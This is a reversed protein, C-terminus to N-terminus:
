HNKKNVCKKLVHAPIGVVVTNAPVNRGRLVVSGAGTVAGKGIIVPAVLTTHSGIFTHSKILTKHKHKGDYNATITGAGINVNDGLTTDGLYTLHKAKTHRGVISKKVEVFNGIEATDKIVAGARLHAFPGIVCGKGIKVEGEIVTLPEIVTDRGIKARIDIYTTLPDVVTVGRKMHYEIIRQRMIRNAFALDRQSNIGIIEEVDKVTFSSLNYGRNILLGVTDTLYYERQKNHRKLLALVKFLPKASFCYMGSNIETIDRGKRGIDLHETIGIIANSSNRLIRGYGQPHSSNGTLVTCNSEIQRHRRILHRITDAKILPMDACAVLVDGRFGSLISRLRNVAHGTGLPMPQIVAKVTDPLADRIKNERHSLVVFIQKIGAKQLAEIALRVMPVGAVSHLVKPLSSHMRKGKGAALVIGIIDKKAM